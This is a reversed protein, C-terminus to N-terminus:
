CRSIIMDLSNLWPDLDPVGFVRPTITARRKRAGASAASNLAPRTLAHPDPVLVTDTALVSVGGGGAEEGAVVSAVVSAVDAAVVVAVLSSVAVAGCVVRVSDPGANARVVAL